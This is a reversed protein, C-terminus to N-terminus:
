EGIPPANLHDLQFDWQDVTGAIRRDAKSLKEIAAVTKSSAIMKAEKAKNCKAAAERAIKRAEDFARLTSDFRWHTGIWSLWKSWEAIYRLDAEHLEAFRLALAEDSFAPAREAHADNDAGNGRAEVVDGRNGPARAAPEAAPLRHVNLAALREEPSV